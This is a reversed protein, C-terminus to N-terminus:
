SLLLQKEQGAKDMGFGGEGDAEDEDEDKKRAPPDLCNAPIFPSLLRRLGNQEARM